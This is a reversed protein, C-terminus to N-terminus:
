SVNVQINRMNKISFGLVGIFFDKSFSLFLAPSYKYGSIRALKVMSVFAKLRDFLKEKLHVARRFNVYIARNNYIEAAKIMIHYYARWEQSISNAFIQSMKQNFNAQESYRDVSSMFVSKSLELKPEIKSGFLNSNHQRYYCLSEDIKVIDGLACALTYVWTDHSLIYKDNEPQQPRLKPSVVKFIERRFMMTHGFGEIYPFITLPKVLMTQKISQRLISIIKLNSDTIFSKHISLLTGKRMFQHARELKYPLWVDDQDSLAVFEGTCAEIARIFNDSFGLRPGPPLIVVEFPASKAFEEVIKLTDDTSGDDSVVLEDPLLTQTLYSGLQEQLYKAGNYTALAISIGSGM